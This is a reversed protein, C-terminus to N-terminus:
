APHLAVEAQDAGRVVVELALHLFSAKSEIEVVTEGGAGHAKGTQSLSAVVDALEEAGEQQGFADVRGRIAPDVCM